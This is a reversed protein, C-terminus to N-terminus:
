GNIYTIGETEYKSPGQDITVTARNLALILAIIGDIKEKSARKDPKYNGSPGYHVMVNGAMWRLVPHGNHALQRGLMMVELAKSPETMKGWTQAIPFVILGDEDQLQLVLQMANAPDYAIEKVQYKKTDENIAHRIWRYDIVNGPTPIIFGKDAWQGYKVSDTKVRKIINDQPMWFRCLIKYKEGENDPPFVHILASLDNITSLDLGSYCIRGELEKEDFPFACENWERIDLWQSIQNIWQNLRFRRFNGQRAPNKKVQNYHIRIKEIDFIADLSPNVQKWIKESEWDADKDAAYIVPLLTSDEIAGNKVQMAYNHIEWGISETDYLGATTLAFIIQQKRATDTGEVLVDWLERNPQAHVEDFIVASPNLGHKTFAESSLVQYFGNTKYDVIRKQSDIIKLRNSLAPNNRVMQAAIRFVIGAQFRDAAASYVEGGIEGDAILMYLAIAAALESKGSKKPIEVYCTRYQRYGDKNLTGFFPTIVDKKQWDIWKWDKGAWEGKTHTCYTEIFKIVHNSKTM